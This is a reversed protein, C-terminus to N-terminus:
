RNLSFVLDFKHLYVAYAVQSVTLHPLHSQLQFMWRRSQMARSGVSRGNMGAGTLTLSVLM